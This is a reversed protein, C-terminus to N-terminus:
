NTTTWLHNKKLKKISQNITEKTIPAKKKPEEAAKMISEFVQNTINESIREHDNTPEEKQFLNQYFEAFIEKIEEPTSKEEGEKNKMCSPTEGKEKRDMKKKFEWFTGAHMKSDSQLIKAMKMTHKAKQLRIENEIIENIHSTQQKKMSRTWKRKQINKKVMNLNRESKLQQNRKRLKKETAANIIRRVEKNWKNYKEDIGINECAIKTLIGKETAKKINGLSKDTIACVKENCSREINAMEWQIEIIMACHDTYVMNKGEKHRPTIEKKEDIKVSSIYREYINM